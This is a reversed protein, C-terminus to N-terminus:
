DVIEAVQEIADEFADDQNVINLLNEAADVVYEAADDVVDVVYEAVDEVVDAVYEAADIVEELFTEFFGQEQDAASVMPMGAAFICTFLGYAFKKGNM